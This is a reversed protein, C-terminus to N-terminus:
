RPTRLHPAVCPKTNRRTKTICKCLAQHMYLAGLHHMYLASSGHVSRKTCTCLALHMFLAGSLADQRPSAHVSRKTCSCLAQHMYLAGSAHVSRWISRRTKTICTCLAQHMYLAGLHHMYLAGSLADQRPSAHVSRRPWAQKKTTSLCAMTRRINPAKWRPRTHSHYSKIYHM